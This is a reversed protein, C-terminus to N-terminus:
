ENEGCKIELNNGVGTIRYGNLIGSKGIIYVGIVMVLVIGSAIIVKNGM